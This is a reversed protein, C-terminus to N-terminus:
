EKEYKELDNAHLTQAMVGRCGTGVCEYIYDLWPNKRVEKVVALSNIMLRHKIEDCGKVRVLDGERFKPEKTEEVKGAVLETGTLRGFAVSAGKKFDFTDSPSCKAEATGQLEKGIYHRVTTTVGDTTIIIKEDPNLLQLMDAACWYAEGNQCRGGGSHYVERARDFKVLWVMRFPHKAVITGTDGIVADAYGMARKKVVKVRDGIKFMNSM